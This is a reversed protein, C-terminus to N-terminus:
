QYDPHRNLSRTNAERSATQGNTNMSSQFLNSRLFTFITIKHIEHTPIWGKIQRQIQLPYITQLSPPTLPSQQLQANVTCAGKPPKQCSHLHHMMKHKGTPIATPPIQLKSSVESNKARPIKYTWKFNTGISRFQNSGLQTWLGTKNPPSSAETRPSNTQSEQNIRAQLSCYQTRHNIPCSTKPVAKSTAKVSFKFGRKNLRRLMPELPNSVM